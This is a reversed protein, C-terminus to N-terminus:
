YFFRGFLLFSSKGTEASLKSYVYGVGMNFHLNQYNWANYDLIISYEQYRGFSIMGDLKIPLSSKMLDISGFIYGNLYQGASGSSFYPSPFTTPFNITKGYFRSPDNFTYIGGNLYSSMISYIGAGFDFIKYKFTQDFWLLGALADGAGISTAPNMSTNGLQFIGRLVSDSRWDGSFDFGYRVDGGAQFLVGNRGPLVNSPLQTDLLVFGNVDFGSISYNVGGALVEGWVGLINKKATPYYGLIVNTGDLTSSINPNSGTLLLSDMFVAWLRVNNVLMTASAGQINGSLYDFKIFNTNFRGVAFEFRSNKYHVYAESIDGRDGIGNYDGFNFGNPSNKNYINWGGIAGIGFDWGNELSFAVGVHAMLNVYSHKSGIGQNYLGGIAGFSKFKLAEDGTDLDQAYLGACLGLALIGSWINKKM